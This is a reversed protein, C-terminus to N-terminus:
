INLKSLNFIQTIISIIECNIDVVGHRLGRPGTRSRNLNSQSSPTETETKVPLWSEPEPARASSWDAAASGVGRGRSWHSRPAPPPRRPARLTACSFFTGPITLPWWERLWRNDVSTEWWPRLIHILHLTMLEINSNIYVDICKITWDTWCNPVLRHLLIGM